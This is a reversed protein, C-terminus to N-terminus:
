RLSPPGIACVALLALPTAAAFRVLAHIRSHM